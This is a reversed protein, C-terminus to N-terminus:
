VLEQRETGPFGLMRYEGLHNSNVIQRIASSPTLINPSESASPTRKANKLEYPLMM